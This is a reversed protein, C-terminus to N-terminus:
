RVFVELPGPGHGVPGVIALSRPGAFVAAADRVDDVDVRELEAVAEDLSVLPQATTVLHGLRGMRADTDENALVLAGIVAARAHAVDEREITAPLRDLEAVLVKAVEDVREPTTGAYAAFMGADSWATTYAYTAYALGRVERIEQFLRSSMGGGLITTALSLAPRRVDTADWCAGGVALHAQETPRERVHVRGTALHSPSSRPRDVHGPRGLDGLLDDVLAVLEGHDVLGAATVM